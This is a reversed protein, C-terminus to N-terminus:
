CSLQRRGKARRRKLVRRGGVTKLRARFGHRRKRIVLSPQYTRKVAYLATKNVEGDINVDVNSDVTDEVDVVPVNIQVTKELGPAEVPAYLHELHGLIQEASLLAPAAELTEGQNQGVDWQHTQEAAEGAVPQTTAWVAEPRIDLSAFIKAVPTDLCAGASHTLPETELDHSLWRHGWGGRSGGARGLAASSINSMGMTGRPVASFSWTPALYSGSNLPLAFLSVQPTLSLDLSAVLFPAHPLSLCGTRRRKM